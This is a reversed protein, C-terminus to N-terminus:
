KIIRQYVFRDNAVKVNSLLLYNFAVKTLHNTTLLSRWAEIFSLKRETGHKMDKELVQM